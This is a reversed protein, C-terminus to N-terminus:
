KNEEMMNAQRLLAEDPETLFGWLGEGGVSVVARGIWSAWETESGFEDRWSFLRRTSRQLAYEQTFGIAAHVAHAVAAAHGASEGVRCKAAAIEFRGHGPQTAAAVAGQVAASAAAAQGAMLAMQQQVAQFKAIARGFQIREKAYDVTLSLACELAGAMQASRFLAGRFFLDDGAGSSELKGVNSEDIVTREFVVDDRPESAYNRGRKSVAFDDLRVVHRGGGSEAIAVLTQANRAWPIRRLAGSLRWETGTRELTLRDSKLVPGVTACGEVAPLGAAALLEQALWTEVLPIPVAASGLARALACSDGIDVGAGGQEESVVAMPLGQEAAADWLAAPWKGAEVSDFLGSTCHDAFMRSAQDVLIDRLDSM